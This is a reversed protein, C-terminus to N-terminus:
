RGRRCGSCLALRRCPRPQGCRGPKQCYGLWKHSPEHNPITALGTLSSLDKRVAVVNDATGAPIRFIPNRYEWGYIAPSNECGLSFLFVLGAARVNVGKFGHHHAFIAVGAEDDRKIVAAVRHRLDSIEEFAADDMDGQPSPRSSPPREVLKQRARGLLGVRGRLKMAKFSFEMAQSSLKTTKGRRKTTKGRRKKTKRRLKVTKPCRKKTTGRHKTTKPCHKTTKPCHKTTKGRRKKTKPRRRVIM